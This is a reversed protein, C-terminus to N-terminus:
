PDERFCDRVVEALAANTAVLNGGDHRVHGALDTVIGGAERVVPTVAAADWISLVPDIMVDARGTAVLAYGYCDGWTRAAAARDSLRDWGNRRGTAQLSAPDSTVVLADSLSATTSVRARRGNWWCGLGTAAAITEGLAPLHIVGVVPEGRIEVAVLTGFLPVGHVFSRTGDIPDLIWRREAEARVTGYEEGIIGDEPFREEIRHRLLREARRDAETVPTADPKQEVSVGTQFASLTSRGARWALDVAFDFLEQLADNM